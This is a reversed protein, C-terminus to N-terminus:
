ADDEEDEGFIWDVGCIGWEPDVDGDKLTRRWDAKEDETMKTFDPLSDRPPTEPEDDVALESEINGIYTDVVAKVSTRETMPFANCFNAVARQSGFRLLQREFDMLANTSVPTSFTRMKVALRLKGAMERLSSSEILKKEVDSDYDWDLKVAFRNAFAESLPRVGRYDPNMDGVILVWKSRCEDGDPDDCWCPVSIKSTVQRTPRHVDIVESNDMIPLSRGTDMLGYLTAAVRDPLFGIENILLVGGYKAVLAVPGYQFVWKGDEDMVRRGIMQTPDIGANSPVVYFRKGNKAAWARVFTTKGPGTPGSVLVNDGDEYAATLIDFDLVGDVRRNVYRKYASEPPVAAVTDLYIDNQSRVPVAAKRLTRARGTAPATAM